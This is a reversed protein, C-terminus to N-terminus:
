RDFAQQMGQTYPLLITKQEPTAHQLVEDILIQTWQKLISWKVGVKEMVMLCLNLLEQEIPVLSQELVCLWLYAQFMNLDRRSSQAVTPTTLFGSRSCHYPFLAVLQSYVTRTIEETTPLMQEVLALIPSNFDYKAGAACVRQWPLAVQEEIFKLYPSLLIKEIPTVKNMILKNTFKLQTTMFGLARWDKCAMHQEQFAMLIPELKYALKEIESLGFEVLPTKELHNVTQSVEIVLSPICLPQEQYSNLLAEYVLLASETIKKAEHFDLVNPIYNHLAKTQLWAMQCNLDLLNGKLKAATKVRGEPSDKELFSTSLLQQSLPLSSLDITYRAAWLKLLREVSSTRLTDTTKFM